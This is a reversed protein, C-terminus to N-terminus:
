IDMNILEDAGLLIIGTPIQGEFNAQAVEDDLLFNERIFVEMYKDSHKFLQKVEEVTCGLIDAYRKVFDFGDLAMSLDLGLKEAAIIEYVRSEVKEQYSKHDPLILFIITHYNMDDLTKFLAGRSNVHMWSGDIIINKHGAELMQGFRRNGLDDTSIESLGFAMEFLTYQDLEKIDEAACKDISVLVFEEHEEVFKKAFTTKGSCSPGVLVIANKRDKQLELEETVTAVKEPFFVKMVERPEMAKGEYQYVKHFSDLLYKEFCTKQM